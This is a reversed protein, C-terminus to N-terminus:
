PAHMANEIEFPSLGSMGGIDSLVRLAPCPLLTNWASATPGFATVPFSGGFRRKARSPVDQMTDASLYSRIVGPADAQHM